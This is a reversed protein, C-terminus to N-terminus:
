STVVTPSVTTETRLLMPPKGRRGGMLVLAATDVKRRQCRHHSRLVNQAIAPQDQPTCLAYGGDDQSYQSQSFDNMSGVFSPQSSQETSGNFFLRGKFRQSGASSGQSFNFPARSPGSFEGTGQSAQRAKPVVFYSSIDKARKKPQSNGMERNADNASRQQLARSTKSSPSRFM